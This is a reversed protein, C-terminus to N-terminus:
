YNSQVGWIGLYLQVRKKSIRQSPPYAEEEECPVGGWCVVCMCEYEHIERETERARACKHLLVCVCVRECVSVCIVGRLLVRGRSIDWGCV